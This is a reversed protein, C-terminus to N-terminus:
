SLDRRVEKSRPLSFWRRTRDRYARYADGYRALCDREELLAERFFGLMMAVSLLVLLWSGAAFGAGLCILFTAVYMPHRSVAYAGKVIALKAPAKIFDWTARALLATGAVFAFLGFIFFITGPRLPLFISYGLALWWAGSTVTSVIKDAQSRQFDGRLHTRQWAGQGTLRVALMQLIFISMFLWANGLGFHLSPSLSM